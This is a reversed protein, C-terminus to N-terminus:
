RLHPMDDVPLGKPELGGRRSGKGCLAARRGAEARDKWGLALGLHM